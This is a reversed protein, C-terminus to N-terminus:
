GSNKFFSNSKGIVFKRSKFCFHLFGRRLLIRQGRFYCFQVIYKFILLLLYPPKFLLKGVGCLYKFFKCFYSTNFNSVKWGTTKFFFDRVAEM